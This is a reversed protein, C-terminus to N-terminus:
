LMDFTRTKFKNEYKEMITTVLGGQEDEFLHELTHKNKQTHKKLASQDTPRM